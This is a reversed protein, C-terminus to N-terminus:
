KSLLWAVLTDLDADSGPFPPMAITYNPDNSLRKGTDVYVSPDKIYSRLEAADWKAALNSLAPALPTGSLDDKHCMVCNNAKYIEAADVPPTATETGPNGSASGAATGASSSGADNSGKPCATCSLALAAMFLCISLKQIHSQM